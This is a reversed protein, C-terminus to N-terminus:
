GGRMASAGQPQGGPRHGHGAHDGAAEFVTGPVKFIGSGVVIGIALGALGSIGTVRQPGDRDPSTSLHAMFTSRAGEM